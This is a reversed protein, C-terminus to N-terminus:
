LLPPLSQNLSLYSLLDQATMLPQQGNVKGALELNLAQALHFSFNGLTGVTIKMQGSVKAYELCSM